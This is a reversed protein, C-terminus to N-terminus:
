PQEDTEGEAMRRIIEEGLRQREMLGRWRHVAADHAPCWAGRAVPRGCYSWRRWDVDAAIFRCGGEDPAQDPGSSPALRPLDTPVKEAHAAIRGPVMSTM